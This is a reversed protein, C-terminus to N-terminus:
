LIRPSPRTPSNTQGATDRTQKRTETGNLPPKLIDVHPRAADHRIGAFISSAEANGSSDM